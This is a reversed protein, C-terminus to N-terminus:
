NESIIKELTESLIQSVHYTTKSIKKEAFDNEIKCMTTIFISELFLDSDFLTQFEKYVILSDEILGKTIASYLRRVFEEKPIFDENQFRGDSIKPEFKFTM